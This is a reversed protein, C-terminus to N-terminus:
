DDGVKRKKPVYKINRQETRGNSRVATPIAQETERRFQNPPTYPIEVDLVTSVPTDFTDGDDVKAERVGQVDRGFDELDYEIRIKARFKPYSKGFLHCTTDLSERVAQAVKYAIGDKIESDTLPNPLELENAIAM